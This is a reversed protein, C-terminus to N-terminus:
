ETVEAKVNDGSDADEDEDSDWDEEDLDICICEFVRENADSEDVSDEEGGWEEDESSLDHDDSHRGSTVYWTPKKGEPHGM